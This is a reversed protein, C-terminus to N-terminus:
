KAMYGEPIEFLSDALDQQEISFVEHSITIMSILGNDTNNDFMSQMMSIMQDKMAFLTSDYYESTDINALASDNAQHLDWMPTKVDMHYKIIVSGSILMRRWIEKSHFSVVSMFDQMAAYDTDNDVGFSNQQYAQYANYIDQGSISDCVWFTTIIQMSDKKEGSSRGTTQITYKRCPFGNVDEVADTSDRITTWTYSINLTDEPIDFSVFGTDISDPDIKPPPTLDEETYTKALTDLIWGINKEFDVISNTGGTQYDSMFNMIGEHKVTSLTRARHATLYLKTETVSGGMNMVSHTGRIEIVLGEEAGCISVLLFVSLFVVGWYIRNM